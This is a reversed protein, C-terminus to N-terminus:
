GYQSRFQANAPLVGSRLWQNDVGEVCYVVPGRQIAVRERIAGAFPHGVVRQVPM